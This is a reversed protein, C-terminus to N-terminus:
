WETSAFLFPEETDEPYEVFVEHFSKGADDFPHEMFTEKMEEDTLRYPHDIQDADFSTYDLYFVVAEEMSNAGVWDYENLKYLNM